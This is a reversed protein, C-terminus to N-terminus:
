HGGKPQPIAVLGPAEVPTSEGVHELERRLEEAEGRVSCDPHEASLGGPQALCELEAQLLHGM